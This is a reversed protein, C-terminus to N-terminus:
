KLQVYFVTRLRRFGAVFGDLAVGKGPSANILYMCGQTRAGRLEPEYASQLEEFNKSQGNIEYLDPGRIVTEFLMEKLGLESCKPTLNSRGVRKGTAKPDVKTITLGEAQLEEMSAPISVNFNKRWWERIRQLEVAKERELQLQAKLDDIEAERKELMKKWDPGASAGQSYWVVFLILLFTEALTMGIILDTKIPDSIRM